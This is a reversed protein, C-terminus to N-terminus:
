ASIDNRNLINWMIDDYQVPIIQDHFKSTVERTILLQLQSYTDRDIDEVIRAKIDEDPFAQQLHGLIPTDVAANLFPTIRSATHADPLSAYYVYVKIAIDLVKAAHGYSAHTSRKIVVGNRTREATRIESTFWECFREHLQLYQTRTAVEALQSFALELHKTIKPKSGREFVRIMATFTLAMDIVNKRKVEQALVSPTTASM